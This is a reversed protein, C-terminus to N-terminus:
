CDFDVAGTGAWTAATLFVVREPLLSELADVSLEALEAAAAAPRAGEAALNEVARSLGARLVALLGAAAVAALVAAVVSFFGNTLRKKGCCLVGAASLLLASESDLLSSSVDVSSDSSSTSSLGVALVVTLLTLLGEDLAAVDPTDAPLEVVDEYRSRRSELRLERSSIIGLM